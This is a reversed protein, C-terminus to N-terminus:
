PITLRKIDNKTVGTITSGRAKRGLASLSQRIARIFYNANVVNDKLLLGQCDQSFCLDVPAIAAKGVGVRSVIIVTGKPVLNTASNQIAEATINRTIKINGSESIDASSIWPIQGNWYTTNKTSPTGGGVIKHSLEQISYQAIKMQYI